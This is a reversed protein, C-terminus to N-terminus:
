SAARFDALFREIKEFQRGREFRKRAEADLGAVSGGRRKEDIWGKLAQAITKPDKSVVGFDNERIIDAAEGKESGVSLIPRGAGIYEFLKGAVVSNEGPDDWRLLLLIDSAQERAIIEAHPVPPFTRVSREVGYKAVLADVSSESSLYFDIQVKDAEGGLLALAEFLPSPDRKGGYLAGAYLLRVVGDGTEPAIGERFDAPDFGNMALLAPKGTEKELLESWARTVTVYGAVDRLTRSEILRDILTRVATEAYYPHHVWLDRFEAVWPCDAAKALRHGVLLGTHPPATVFLIDPRWDRFLARGERVAHRYWGIYNDPISVLSRYIDGLATKLSRSRAPTSLSNPSNAPARDQGDSPQTKGGKLFAFVKDPLAWVDTFGTYTIRGEPVSTSLLPPHAPNKASLVRVDHGRGLLFTAFKGVRTGSIPAYPPFYGAVILIKVDLPNGSNVERLRSRAADRAYFAGVPYGFRM